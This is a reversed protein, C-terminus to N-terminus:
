RIGKYNQIRELLDSNLVKKLNAVISALKKNDSELLKVQELLYENILREKFLFCMNEYYVDPVVNKDLTKIEDALVKALKDIKRKSTNGLTSYIYVYGCTPIYELGQGSDPSKYTLRKDKSTLYELLLKRTITM